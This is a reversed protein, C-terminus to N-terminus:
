TCVVGYDNTKTTGDMGMQDQAHETETREVGTNGISAATTQSTKHLVRPPLTRM